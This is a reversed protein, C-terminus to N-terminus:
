SSVCNTHVPVVHPSRACIYRVFWVEKRGRRCTGTSLADPSQGFGGDAHFCSLRALPLDKRVVSAVRHEGSCFEAGVTELDRFAQAFKAHIRTIRIARVDNPATTDGLCKLM